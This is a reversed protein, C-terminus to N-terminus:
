NALCVDNLRYWGFDLLGFPLVKLPGSRLVERARVRGFLLLGLELEGVIVGGFEGLKRRLGVAGGVGSLGAGGKRITRVFDYLRRDTAALGDRDTVLVGVRNDGDVLEGAIELHRVPTSIEGDLLLVPHGVVGRLQLVLERANLPRGGVIVARRGGRDLREGVVKLRARQARVEGVLNAVDRGRTEPAVSTLRMELQLGSVREKAAPVIGVSESPVMVEVLKQPALGIAFVKHELNWEQLSWLFGDNISLDLDPDNQGFTCRIDDRARRWSGSRVEVLSTFYETGTGMSFSSRYRCLVKMSVMPRVAM